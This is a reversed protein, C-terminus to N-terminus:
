SKSLLKLVAQSANIKEIDKEKRVHRKFRQTATLACAM